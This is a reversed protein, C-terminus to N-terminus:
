ISATQISGTSNMEMATQALGLTLHTLLYELGRKQAESIAKFQVACKNVTYFPGSEPDRDFACDLGDSIVRCPLDPLFFDKDCLFLTLKTSDPERAETIPIYEFALGGVSIQSVKGVKTFRAGLAAYTDPRAIFRIYKRKEKEVLM